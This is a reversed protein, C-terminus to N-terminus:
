DDSRLASPRMTKALPEIESNATYGLAGWFPGAQASGILALAYIRTAGEERLIEEVRGVLDAGIGQRRHDPHVALRYINARWGDWGGMACGVLEDGSWALLFWDRDRELRKQLAARTNTSGGPSGVRWLELVRDIDEPRCARYSVAM